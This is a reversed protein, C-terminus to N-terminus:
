LDNWSILNFEDNKKILDALILSTEVEQSRWGEKSGPHVGVEISGNIKLSSLHEPWKHNNYNTNMYFFDTTHFNKKINKKLWSNLWFSPSSYKKDLFINQANRMKEIQIKSKIKSLTRSFIPLKHIHGHSDIHSIKIGSERLLNIQAITELEIHFPDVSKMLALRRLRNTSHFSGDNNTLTSIQSHPLIPREIKDTIYNLHIGFSFRPNKKAYEIALKTAPMSLIITASSIVNTEFLNITSEVSDKSFGFDDANIIFNLM